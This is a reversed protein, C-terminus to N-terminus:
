RPCARRTGYVAVRGRQVCREPLAQHSERPAPRRRESSPLLLARRRTSRQCDHPSGGERWMARYATELNRAFRATDMLASREMRERLGSRLESLAHLNRSFTVASRVYGDAGSVTWEPLGLNRAHCLGARGVITRGVLSLVPVGMWWADLSTM